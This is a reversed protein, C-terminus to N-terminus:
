SDLCYQTLFAVKIPEIYKQVTNSMVQPSPASGFPVNPRDYNYGKNPPLYQNQGSIGIDGSVYVICTILLQFHIFKKKNKIFLVM